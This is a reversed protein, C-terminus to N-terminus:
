HRRKGCIKLIFAAISKGIIQSIITPNFTPAAYFLATNFIISEFVLVTLLSIFLVFFYYKKKINSILYQYMVVLLFFDIVLIITGIIFFKYDIHFLSSTNIDLHRITRNIVEQTYTIEFLVSMLSNSIIIGFILARASAVGEKIYLLLVTFLVAGFLIVSGPYITYTEFFKFSVMTGLNAQLYQIAGLLIYLPALGLKDRFKFLSLISFTIFIFEFLITTFLAM